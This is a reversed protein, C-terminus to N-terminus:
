EGITNEYFNIAFNVSQSTNGTPPTYTVGMSAGKPLIFTSIDVPYLGAAPFQINCCISDQGTLTNGEAGKYYVATPLTPEGFRLNNINAVSAGTILTGGTPNVYIKILHDGSGGTSNGLVIFLDEIVLDNDGNNKIYFVGSENDSTLTILGSELSWGRGINNHFSQRSEQTADVGLRNLKNVKARKGSGTGDIIESSM